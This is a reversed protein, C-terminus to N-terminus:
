IIIPELTGLFFVCTYTQTQVVKGPKARKTGCHTHLHPFQRCGGLHQLVCASTSKAHFSQSVYMLIQPIITLFCSHYSQHEKLFFITFLCFVALPKERRPLAGWSLALMSFSDGRMKCLPLEERELRLEGGHSHPSSLRRTDSGHKAQPYASPNTEVVPLLLFKKPLLYERCFLYRNYMGFRLPSSIPFRHLLLSFHVIVAEITVYAPITATPISELKNRM